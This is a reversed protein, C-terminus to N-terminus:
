PELEARFLWDGRIKTCEADFIGLESLLIEKQPYFNVHEDLTYFYYRQCPVAVYLVRKAVRKLEAVARTPELLHELTHSCTVVDFSKDEFPLAEANGTVARLGEYALKNVVDFGTLEIDPREKRVRDLLYGRGCGVDLLSKTDKPIGRLIALVSPENLDTLRNRSITDLNAYFDRYEDPSFRYVLEKFNMAQKINRGRFAVWYFPYM